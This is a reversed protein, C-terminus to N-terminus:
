SCINNVIKSQHNYIHNLSVAAANALVPAGLPLATNIQSVFALCHFTGLM